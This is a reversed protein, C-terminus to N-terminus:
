FFMQMLDCILLIDSILKTLFMKHDIVIFLFRFVCLNFFTIGYKEFLVHFPLFIYILIIQYLFSKWVFLLKQWMMLEKLFMKNNEFSNKKDSGVVDFTLSSNATAVEFQIEELFIKNLKPLLLYNLARM